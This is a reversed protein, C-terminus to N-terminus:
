FLLSGNLCASQDGMEHPTSTKVTAYGPIPHPKKDATQRFSKKISLKQLPSQRIGRRSGGPEEPPPPGGSLRRPQKPTSLTLTKPLNTTYYIEQLTAEYLVQKLAIDPTTGPYGTAQGGPREKLPSLHRGTKKYYTLIFAQM